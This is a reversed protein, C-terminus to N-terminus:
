KINYRVVSLQGVIRGIKSMTKYGALGAVHAGLSHGVITTTSLEIGHSELFLLMRKVYEAVEGLKKVVASYTSPISHGIGWYQAQKWDIVIVNFDGSKLFGIIITSGNM